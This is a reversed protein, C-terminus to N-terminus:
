YTVFPFYKNDFIVKNTAKSIPPLMKQITRNTVSLFNIVIVKPDVLFYANNDILLPNVYLYVTSDILYQQSDGGWINGINEAIIYV